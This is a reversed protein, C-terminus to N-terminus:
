SRTPKSQIQWPGPGFMVDPTYSHTAGAPDCEKGESNFRFRGNATEVYICPSSLKVVKGEVPGFGGNIYVEQGVRPTKM